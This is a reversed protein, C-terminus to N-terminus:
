RCKMKPKDLRQIVCRRIGPNAGENLIGTEYNMVDYEQKGSLGGEARQKHKREGVFSPMANSLFM